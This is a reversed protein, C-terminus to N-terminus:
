TRLWRSAKKADNAVPEDFSTGYTPRPYRIIYEFVMLGVALATYRFLHDIEM